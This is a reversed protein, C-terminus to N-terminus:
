KKPPLDKIDEHAIWIRSLVMLINLILHASSARSWACLWTVCM